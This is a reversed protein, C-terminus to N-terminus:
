TIIEIYINDSKIEMWVESDFDWRRGIVLYRKPNYVKFGYKKEFWCRNNSDEFYKKYVRTQAIYGQIESSFKERNTEGVIANGKIQPLKFEVIDAYGNPKVVFFDPKIAEKDESQWKCEM